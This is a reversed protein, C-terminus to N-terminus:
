HHYENPALTIRMGAIDISRVGRFHGAVQTEGEATKRLHKRVWHIIAKRKGADTIPADRISFLEIHDGFPVPFKIECGDSVSCLLSNLRQADEILSCAMYAHASENQSSVFVNGCKVPVTFGSDNFAVIRKGYCEFGDRIERIHYEYWHTVAGLPTIPMKARPKSEIKRYGLWRLSAELCIAVEVGEGIIDQPRSLLLDRSDTVLRESDTIDNAFFSTPKMDQFGLCMNGVDVNGGNVGGGKKGSRYVRGQNISAKRDASLALLIADELEYATQKNFAKGNM